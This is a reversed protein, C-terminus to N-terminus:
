CATVKAENAAVDIALLVQALVPQPEGSEGMWATAIREAAAHRLRNRLGVKDQVLWDSTESAYSALSGATNSIAGGIASLWGADRATSPTDGAESAPQVEPTVPAPFTVLDGGALVKALGALSPSLSALESGADNFFDALPARLADSVLTDIRHHSFGRPDWASDLFTADKVKAEFAQRAAIAAANIIGYASMVQHDRWAM